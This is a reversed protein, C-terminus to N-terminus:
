GECKYNITEYKITQSPHISRVNFIRYYGHKGLLYNVINIAILCVTGVLIVFLVDRPTKALIVISGFIAVSGPFYFGVMFLGEIMIGFILFWYGYQAFLSEGLQWLEGPSPLNTYPYTLLYVLFFLAISYEFLASLFFNKIHRVM